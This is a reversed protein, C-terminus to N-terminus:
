LGRVCVCQRICVRVPLLLLLLLVVDVDFHSVVSQHYVYGTANRSDPVSIMPFQQYIPIDARAPLCMGVTTLTPLPAIGSTASIVARLRSSDSVNSGAENDDEDTVNIEDECEPEHALPPKMVAAPSVAPIVVQDQNQCCASYWCCRHIFLFLPLLLIVLM